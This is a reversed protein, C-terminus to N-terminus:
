KAAAKVNVVGKMGAEYHGPSLCSFPFNGVKTFQWIVEGSQGPALSKMNPEDHEMEPSKKMQELHTKIEKESNLIFEHKVKGTNKLAFRITEGQKVDLSSPTFRMTDALDVKITRSVKSAIGPKGLSDDHGGAHDGSALTLSSLFLTTIALLPITKM